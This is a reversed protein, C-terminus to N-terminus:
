TYLSFRKQLDTSWLATMFIVNVDTGAKVLIEVIEEKIAEKEKDLIYATLCSVSQTPYKEIHM